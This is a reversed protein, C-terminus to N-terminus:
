GVIIIVEIFKFIPSKHSTSVSGNELIVLYKNVTVPTYKVYRLRETRQINKGWFTVRERLYIYESLGGALICRLRRLLCLLCYQVGTVNLQIFDKSIKFYKKGICLQAFQTWFLTTQGLPSFDQGSHVTMKDSFFSM